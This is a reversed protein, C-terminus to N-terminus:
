FLDVIGKFLGSFFNGVARFLLRWWSAKNVDEAAILDITILKDEQTSLDKYKYTVTGVKDGLKIPAVLPNQTSKVEQVVPKVPQGKPILVTIDTATVVSLKTSVGKKVKLTEYDPVIAKAQIITKKEFNNFGYDFLKATELFRKGDNTGGPVGM